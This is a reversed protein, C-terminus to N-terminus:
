KKVVKITSIATDNAIRVMYVGPAFESFNLETRETAVKSTMMLKGFADFVTIDANIVDSEVTVNGTTPNPYINASISYNNVGDIIYDFEVAESWESLDDEACVAQVAVSAHTNNELGEVTFTTTSVTTDIVVEGAVTVQVNYNAADGTWTVVNNNVAVNTPTACPEAVSDFVNVDDLLINYGDNSSALFSIQYTASAEPLEHVEHAYATYSSDAFDALLVWESTESTRYYVTLVDLSVSQYYAQFHQYSLVPNALQTLDLVPSVLRTVNDPTYPAVAYHTGEYANSGEGIWWADAEDEQEISWCIGSNEFGEHFPNESTVVFVECETAFVIEDSWDSEDDDACNAKVKVTYITAATLNDLTFPNTSAAVETGNVEITWGQPDTTNNDTWSIEASTTTINNVEVDTPRLCTPTKGVRVDDLYIYADGNGWNSTGAFVIVVQDTAALNDLAIEMLTWDSVGTLGTALATTYTAGGDTSVFVSFDGGTPNKYNFSLMPNMVETVDLVPTKLMNTLGNSNSYSNFRLGAGTAGTAYYNWKYSDNTTTGESNDWCTPIGATLTNFDEVFPENNTVEVIVCSTAFTIPASYDSEDDASCIAKIRLTYATAPDLDEFTYPNETIGTIEEGNLEITWETEGSNATWSITASTATINEAANLSPAACAPAAAVTVDDIFIAYGYDAIGEFAIQYSASVNPLILMQEEWSTHEEDYYALEVWDQASSTRYYVRMKNLDGTWQANAMQFTLLASSGLASLDLVPSVLKTVNTHNSAYFKACAGDYLSSVAGNNSLTTAITWATTGNVYDNLTWCAGDNSFNEIFPEAETVVVTVCETTFNVTNSWASADTASCNAKVKVTYATAPTLGNLTYPNETIGTMEEGNVELTWETEDNNATWSLTVSTSQLATYELDTPALCTPDTTFSVTNSWDSADEDTCNAKVKVTYETGATLGTLTYPNTTVGTTLTGNADITWETETGGATWNLDVTHATVNSYALGTPKACTPPVEFTFDDLCLYYADNSTCKVAVYKTGAPFSNSYLTWASTAEIETSWTFSTVNADTTSYGVEFTESWTSSASKYNFEVVLGTATGTLEPSILYQPPTTIWHFTFAYTGNAVYSTTTTIGTQAHCDVMTWGEATLDNNEFGYSYPLAQQAKAPACAMMLVVLMMTLMKAAQLINKM